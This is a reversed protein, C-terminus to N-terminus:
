KTASDIFISKDIQIIIRAVTEDAIREVIGVGPPNPNKSPPIVASNINNPIEAVDATEKTAISLIIEQSLTISKPPKNNM